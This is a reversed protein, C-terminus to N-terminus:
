SDGSQPKFSCWDVFREAGAVDAVDAVEGSGQTGRNGRNSPPGGQKGVSERLQQQQQAEALALEAGQVRAHQESLDAEFQSRLEREM